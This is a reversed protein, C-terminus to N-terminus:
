LMVDCENHNSQKALTKKHLAAIDETALTGNLLMNKMFHAAREPADHIYYRGFLCRQVERISDAYKAWYDKDSIRKLLADYDSVQIPAVFKMIDGQMDSKKYENFPVFRDTEDKDQELNFGGLLHTDIRSTTIPIIPFGLMLSTTLIGSYCAALVYDAALRPLMTVDPSDYIFINDGKAYSTRFNIPKIFVNAFQSIKVLAIDIERYDMAAATYYVILPLNKNFKKGIKNELEKRFIKKRNEYGKKIWDTHLLGIVSAENGDKQVGYVACGEPDFSYLSYEQLSNVLQRESPFLVCSNETIPPCFDDTGHIYFIKKISKDNLVRLTYENSAHFQYSGDMVIFRHQLLREYKDDVIITIGHASLENLENKKCVVTWENCYYICFDGGLKLMLPTIFVFNDSCIDSFAAKTHIDTPSGPRNPDYTRATRITAPPM